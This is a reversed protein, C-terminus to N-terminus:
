AYRPPPEPDDDNSPGKEADTIERFVYNKPYVVYMSGADGRFRCMSTVQDIYEMYMAPDFIQKFMYETSCIFPVNMELIQFLNEQFKLQQELTGTFKREEPSM